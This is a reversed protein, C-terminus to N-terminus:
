FFNSLFDFSTYLEGNELWLFSYVVIAIFITSVFELLFTFWRLACLSLYWSSVNHDQFEHFEKELFPEANSVHM